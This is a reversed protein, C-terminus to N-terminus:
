NIGWNTLLIKSNTIRKLEGLVFKDKIYKLEAIAIDQTSNFEPINYIDGYDMIIGLGKSEQIESNNLKYDYISVKNYKALIKAITYFNKGFFVIKKDTPMNKEFYDKINQIEKVELQKPQDNLVKDLYPVINEFVYEPKLETMCPPTKYGRICHTQWDDVIWECWHSCGKSRLNINNDYGLYEIATQAFMVVSSGYLFHKVHVMGCEGDIHLVSHKLIAKVEELNTQGLLNIDIGKLEECRSVGLQVFKIDPYKQKIDMILKEYYEIPWLRVNEKQNYNQDVSRTITIYKINNLNYRDLVEFSKPDLALFMKSKETIDLINDIDPQQIRKENRCISYLDILTDCSAGNIFFKGNEKQFCNYKYIIKNLNDSFSKIKSYDYYVVHPFRRFAIALDYKKYNDEFDSYNYIKNIFTEETFVTNSIMKSKSPFVDIYFDSKIIKSFEKVWLGYVLVDGLGGDLRIAIRLANNPLPAISSRVHKPVKFIQTLCYFIVRLYVNYKNNYKRVYKNVKGRLDPGFNEIKM